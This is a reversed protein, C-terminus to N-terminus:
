VSAQALLTSPTLEYTITSTSLQGSLAAALEFLYNVMAVLLCAICVYLTTDLRAM